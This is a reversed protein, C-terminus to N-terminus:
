ANNEGQFEIYGIFPLNRYCEDYDLGYGVVFKNDIDFGYYDPEFDVERRMNKNLLSCFKLDKLNYNDKLYDVMYKATRGTDTIDEVILVNKGNLDPLSVNIAKVNGSSTTSSGYSSLRVFEMKLPMTLTRALDVAFIVSGRLVSIMYLEQDKYIENFINGLEKVKQAIEESSYLTKIEYNKNM